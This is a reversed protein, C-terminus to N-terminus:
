ASPVARWLWAQLDSAYFAARFEELELTSCDPSPWISCSPRGKCSCACSFDRGWSDAVALKDILKCANGSAESSDNPRTLIRGKRVPEKHGGAVKRTNQGFFRPFTPGGPLHSGCARSDFRNKAVIRLDHQLNTRDLQSRPGFARMRRRKKRASGRGARRNGRTARMSDQPSM